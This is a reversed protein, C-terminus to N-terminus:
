KYQSESSNSHNYHGDYSSAADAEYFIMQAIRTNPAFEIPDDSLNYISLGCVGHFGPDYFGCTIFVGKRSYSSRQKMDAYVNDPLNVGENIDVNKFQGPFIRITENLKLTVDIGIQQIQDEAKFNNGPIFYGKEIAVKPNIQSMSNISRQRFYYLM